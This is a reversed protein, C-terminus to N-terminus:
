KPADSIWVATNRISEMKREIRKRATRVDRLNVMQWDTDVMPLYPILEPSFVERLKQAGNSTNEDKLNQM